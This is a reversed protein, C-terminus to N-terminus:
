LLWAGLIEPPMMEISALKKEPVALEEQVPEPPAHDHDHGHDHDHDHSDWAWGRSFSNGLLRLDSFSKSQRRGALPIQKWGLFTGCPCCFDPGQAPQLQVAM